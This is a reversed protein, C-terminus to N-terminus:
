AVSAQAGFDHHVVATEAAADKADDRSDAPMAM